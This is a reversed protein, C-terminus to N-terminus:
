SPARSSGWSSRTRRRRRQLHELSDFWDTIYSLLIVVIVGGPIAGWISNRGGAILGILLFVALNLDFRTDAVQPTEIM